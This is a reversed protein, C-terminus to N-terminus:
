NRQGQKRRWEALREKTVLSVQYTYEGYHNANNMLKTVNYLSFNEPAYNALDKNSVQEYNIWVRYVKSDQWEQLQAASPLKEKFTNWDVPPPPPPM